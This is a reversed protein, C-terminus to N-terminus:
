FTHRIGVNLNNVDDTNVHAYSSYLSTRKSVPYIYGVAVQTSDRNASTRDDRRIYSAMVRGVGTPISVGVLATREDATIVAGANNKGVSYGLHAIAPGFNYTGGLVTAKAAGTATANNINHHSLVINLPGQLYGLRGGIQRNASTNGAVEGVGYAVEGSVSGASIAYSITNDMRLDIAFINGGLWYTADGALVNNFPDIADVALFLPTWQRGLRVTGFDGTVGVWAQRGFIRGGQKAAGTDISFGNELQFIASLGASLKEAGRFGLRSGGSGIGDDLSVRRGTVDTRYYTLAADAVGYVDIDPQASAAAAFATMMTLALLRVKMLERMFTIITEVSATLGNVM